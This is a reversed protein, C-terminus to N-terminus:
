AETSPGSQTTLEIPIEWRGSGLFGSFGRFRFCLHSGYVILGRSRLQFDAYGISNKPSPHHVWPRFPGPPSAFHGARLGGVLPNHPWKTMLSFGYYGRTYGTNLSASNCIENHVPIQETGSSEFGGTTEFVKSIQIFEICSKIIRLFLPESLSQM